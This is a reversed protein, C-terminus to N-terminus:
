ARADLVAVDYQTIQDDQTLLTLDEIRAQAILARDFPDRHLNPLEGAAVAHEVTIPLEAFQSDSISQAIDGRLELKGTARKVAIEWATAASVL